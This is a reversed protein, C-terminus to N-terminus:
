GLNLEGKIREEGTKEEVEGDGQTAGRRCQPHAQAHRGEGYGPKDLSM